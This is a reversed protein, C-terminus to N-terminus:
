EFHSDEGIKPTFISFIQFMKFGGGLFQQEHEDVKGGGGLFCAIWNGEL